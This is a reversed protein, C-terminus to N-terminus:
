FLMMPSFGRFWHRTKLNSDCKQAVGGWIGVVIRPFAENTQCMERRSHLVNQKASKPLADLVRLNAMSCSLQTWIVIGEVLVSSFIDGGLKLLNSHYVQVTCGLKFGDRTVKFPQFWSSWSEGFPLNIADAAGCSYWQGLVPWKQLGLVMEVANAWYGIRVNHVGSSARHNVRHFDEVSPPNEVDINAQTLAFNGNSKKM